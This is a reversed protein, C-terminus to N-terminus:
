GRPRGGAQQLEVQGALLSLRLAIRGAVFAEFLLLALLQTKWGTVAAGPDVLGFLAVLALGLLGVALYQLLAPVLNRSCFGLSSVL